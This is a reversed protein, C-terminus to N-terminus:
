TRLLLASTTQCAMPFRSWGNPARYLDLLHVVAFRKRVMQPLILRKANLCLESVQVVTTLAAADYVEVAQQVQENCLFALHVCACFVFHSRYFVKQIV